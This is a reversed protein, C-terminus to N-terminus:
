EIIFKIKSLVKEMIKESEELTDAKVIVQGICDNSSTFKRIHDNEKVFFSIEIICEDNLNNSNIIEKLTGSKESLLMKACVATFKNSRKEFYDRPDDGVAMAAIMKYYEVGYYFMVLEPLCNAGVRGTLEIVYVKGDHVILDVNVACNDLGIARIALTTQEEAQKKLSEDLEVPVYHGIPVNTNSLYTNDGMPIIFLIEGNYVFSQAGLEYGEIFEEIICFDQHTEAMAKQFGSIVEDKKYAIYIGRSGQLDIAKVILPFDFEGLVKEVEDITSVRSFRATNVGANIFSEKMLFKDGSLRSSNESLGVLGLKECTYGLAPIGTDMCSTAVGDINLLKAKDYVQKPNSIDVMCLEDAITVGCFDTSHSAVITTIGMEKAAKILGIQGRGAGLILLRKKKNVQIGKGKKYRKSILKWLRV